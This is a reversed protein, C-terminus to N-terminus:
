PLAAELTAWPLRHQGRFQSTLLVSTPHTSLWQLPSTVSPLLVGLRPHNKSSMQELKGFHEGWPVSPLGRSTSLVCISLM